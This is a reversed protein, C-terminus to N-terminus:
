QKNILDRILESITLKGKNAIRVLKDYQEQTIRVIITKEKKM